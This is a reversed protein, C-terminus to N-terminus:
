GRVGGRFSWEDFWVDHENGSPVEHMDGVRRELDDFEILWGEKRAWALMGSAQAPLQRSGSGDAGIGTGGNSALPSQRTTEPDKGTQKGDVLLYRLNL